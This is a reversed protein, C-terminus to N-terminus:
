KQVTKGNRLERIQKKRDSSRMITEGILVANVGAEHLREVDEPTRIGSEAVFIRDEPVLKRLRISNNMDVTFDKLNRNNVGIIKAGADVARKTEEEDHAETIVSLGLKDAISLYKGLKEDNLIACILLICDAGNVFAEYIMYEDITFDKRLLPTKVGSQRIERLYRIDGKFYDPETLVSIADAGAEEYDRALDLYPFDSAILGKSPSAKKIECILHMGPGSLAKRFRFPDANQMQEAMQMMESLSCNEKERQIRKETAAVLNDLIM